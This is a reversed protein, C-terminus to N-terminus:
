TKFTELLFRVLCGFNSFVWRLSPLFFINIRLVTKYVSRNKIKMDFQLSYCPNVCQILAGQYQCNETCGSLTMNRYVNTNVDGDGNM